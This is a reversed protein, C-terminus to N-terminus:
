NKIFNYLKKGNQSDPWKKLLQEVIFGAKELNNNLILTSGYYLYFNENEQVPVSEFYKLALKYNGEAYYGYAKQVIMEISDETGGRVLDTMPPVVLGQAILKEAYTQPRIWPWALVVVMVVGAAVAWWYRMGLVRAGGSGVSDNKKIGKEVDQLKRLEDRLTTYRIGQILLPSSAPDETELVKAPPTYNNELDETENTTSRSSPSPSLDGQPAITKELSQLRSTLDQLATMRIGRAETLLAHYTSYWAPDTDILTKIESMRNTDLEGRLYHDLQSRIDPSAEM